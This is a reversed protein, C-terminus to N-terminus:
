TYTVTDSCDCAVMRLGRFRWPKMRQSVHDCYNDIALNSTTVKLFYVFIYFILFLSIFLIRISISSKGGQSINM